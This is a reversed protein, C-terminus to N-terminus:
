SAKRTKRRRTFRPGLEQMISRALMITSFRHRDGFSHMGPWSISMILVIKGAKKCFPGTTHVGSQSTLTALLPGLM